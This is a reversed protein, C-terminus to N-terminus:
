NMIIFENLRYFVGTILLAKLNKKFSNVTDCNKIHTPFNNYLKLGIYNPSNMILTLKTMPIHFDTKNRTNIPHVAENVKFNDKNKYIYLCLEYIFISTLTLIGYSKFIERCSHIKAVGAICRIIKKQCIFVDSSLCSNDWFCIGYRLRSDVQAHYLNLLQQTTLVTKLNKFQYVISNLKSCLYTCHNKWTLFKDIQLGLFTVHDESELQTNNLSVNLNQQQKQRNQFVVMHTKSSNLYLNNESFWEHLIKLSVNCKQTLQQCVKDSIILSTDDAYITFHINTSIKDLDNLYIIFLVPGLISGQPVGIDVDVCESNITQTNLGNNHCISVYQKRKTVFSTVWNLPIGRVGNM